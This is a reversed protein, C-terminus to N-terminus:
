GLRSALAKLDESKFPKGIFRLGLGCTKEVENPAGTCFYFDERRLIQPQHEKLWEVIQSGTGDPLHFDSIVVEYHYSQLYDLASQVTRPQDVILDDAMRSIIHVWMKGVAKEDEIVLVRRPLVPTVGGSMKSLDANEVCVLCDAEAPNDICHGTRGCIARGTLPNSIHTYSDNM